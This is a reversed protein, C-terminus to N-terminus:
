NWVVTPFYLYSACPVSLTWQGKKLFLFFFFRYFYIGLWHPLKILLLSSTLRSINFARSRNALLPGRVRAGLQIQQHRYSIRRCLKIGHTPGSRDLKSNYEIWAKPKKSAWPGSHSGLCTQSPQVQHPGRDLVGIAQVLHSSADPPDPSPRLQLNPRTAHSHSRAM